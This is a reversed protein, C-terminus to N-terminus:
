DQIGQIKDLDVWGALARPGALGSLTNDTPNYPRIVYEARQGAGKGGQGTDATEWAEKVGQGILKELVPIKLRLRAKLASDTTSELLQRTKPLEEAPDYHDVFVGVHVLLAASGIGYLDGPRPRNQGTAVVWAGQETANDRMQNLGGQTICKPANLVNGVFCPLYGCTTFTLEGTNPDRPLSPDNPDYGPAIRKFKPDGYGSPVVESIAQLARLRRGSLESDKSSSRTQVIRAVAAGAAATVLALAALVPVAAV